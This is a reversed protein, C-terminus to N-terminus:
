GHRIAGGRRPRGIEIIASLSDCVRRVDDRELGAHSPLNIGREALREAVPFGGEPPLSTQRRRTEVDYMPLRHMPVFVPRTEIGAAALQEMVEDRSLRVEDGLVVTNMWHAGWAWSSEPQLTLAPPATRLFDTYWTAVLNRRAVHWDAREVQGLGIAAQLDTMRYNYGVETFWYRRAPDVGQGRLFRASEAVIPDNTVVAGGEGTTLIKNGFFSFAAAHGLGGAKRNKYLAGHAEAADEIVVLNHRAAIENIADMDAPHGYLHVAIIARTKATIHAEVQEPDICWNAPDSDVFVPMAGCYRVANATAVFTLTPMIVQDGVGIGLAMLALHLAATGNCCVVAYKTECFEALAAEFREIYEGGSLQNKDLCDLVYARERGNLVPQAVRLASPNM